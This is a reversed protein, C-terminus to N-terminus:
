IRYIDKRHKIRLIMLIYIRGKTDVDFIARYEGIRFRYQGLEPETLKKAYRLPDKQQSFYEIKKAIRQSVRKELQQVDRRANKTYVIKYMIM